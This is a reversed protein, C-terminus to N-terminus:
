LVKWSRSLRMKGRWKKGSWVFCLLLFLGCFPIWRKVSCTLFKEGRMVMRDPRGRIRYDLGNSVWANSPSRLAVNSSELRTIPSHSHPRGALIGKMNTLTGQSSTFLYNTDPDGSYYRDSQWNTADKSPGNRSFSPNGSYFQYKSDLHKKRIGPRKKFSISWPIEIGYYNTRRSKWPNIKFRDVFGDIFCGDNYDRIENRQILHEILICIAVFM